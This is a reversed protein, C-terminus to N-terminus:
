RLGGAFLRPNWLVLPVRQCEDFMGTGHSFVDHLDGFAEGHDGTIVVLTDDALGRSRLSEFLRGLHRDAQRIANLYRELMDGHHVKKEDLFDIPRTDAALTYPDHTQDTWAVAFFPRSRDADIWRVLADVLVGDETGWSSASPGGLQQPGLVQEFGANEAMWDMGGWEPNAASMFATRYGRGKLVGALGQPIHEANDTRYNWPLGPYASLVLPVISRYTYGVNAYAHDFVLANRSEAVLNPTTDYRSGYLSLYQASVSELVVLIVNRPPPAFQLAPRRREVAPKFDDLYEPPFPGALEIRRNSFLRSALSALMERHPSKGARRVWAEPEAHARVSLGYGVWVAALLLLGAVMMPPPAAARFRRHAGLVPVLMAVFMSAVLWGSAHAQVSSRMDSFRGVLAIMQANLPYGLARFVGVNVVAYAAAVAAVAVAGWGVMRHVRPWRATARLAVAAVVGLLVAVIVDEASAGVARAPRMGERVLPWALTLKAAVFIVALLVAPLFVPRHM